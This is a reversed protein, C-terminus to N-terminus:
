AAPEELDGGLILLLRKLAESLGQLILLGFAVPVVAKLPYRPLGDPDPSVERITFSQVVSPWTFVIVVVCFPILLLLCGLLDVWARTKPSLKRYLVDVRVHEDRQLTHASCLLFLASFAYWQAELLSNSSLDTGIYRGSWRATANYAGLVVMLVALWSVIRGQWKAFGDLWAVVQKISKLPTSLRTM